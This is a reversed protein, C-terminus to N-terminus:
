KAFLKLKSAFYYYYVFLLIGTFLVDVPTTQYTDSEDLYSSEIFIADVVGFLIGVVILLALLRLTVPLGITVFRLIFDKDDISKNVKYCYTIGVITLISMSVTNVADYFGYDLYVSLPLESAIIMLVSYTLFYKLQEKQSLSDSKLQEILPSIKWIYM